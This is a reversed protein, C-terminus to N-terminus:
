ASAQRLEALVRGARQAAEVLREPGTTLAIRFWGACSPGLGQGPIVIMGEREMLAMTFELDDIGEPLHLWLYMTAQPVKVEFGVAHFAAVAADRRQEFVAMNGAIFDHRTKLAAAGAGQLPMYQGMDVFSKVRALPEILRADGNVWGLRWGTMNFTKSLTHFELAIERAGEVEFIGPPRYGAFGMEAYANDFALLVDHERCWAVVDRLYSMPAVAATPNNPYNLYLLRARAAVDAPVEDLDLLFGKEARLPVFHPEGESLRAGGMYSVFGPEPVILADGPSVYALGLLSLGEKSGVLPVTETVPDFEVGFREHMYTVVAERFPKYGTAFGYRGLEPRLSLERLREVAAAPPSLDADGAGLDIVDVGRELLERKRLPM